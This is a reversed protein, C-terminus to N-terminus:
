DNKGECDHKQSTEYEVLGLLINYCDQLQIDVAFLEERLMRINEIQNLLDKKSLVDALICKLNDQSESLIEISESLFIGVKTHVKNVPVNLTIKTNM